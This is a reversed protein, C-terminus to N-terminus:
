VKPANLNIWDIYKDLRTYVSPIGEQGCRDSGFSLLGIQYYRSHTRPDLFILPAGGFGSCADKGAEGGICLHKGTIPVSAGYLLACREIALIPLQLQQQTPPISVQGALKGWGILQARNGVYIYDKNTPYLCIPQVSASYNMPYKLVLLAINDTFTKSDYNPHVIIHNLPIDEANPACYGYACDPDQNCDYEGVKVSAIKHTATKALACHAATLITQKNIISGCCLYDISKTLKNRFGVRVVWPHVGIGSYSTSWWHSIQPRGCEEKQIITPPTSCTQPCCVLLESGQSGCTLGRLKDIQVCSQKVLQSIVHCQSLPICASGRSCLFEQRPTDYFKPSRSSEEEIVLKEGENKKLAIIHIVFSILLLFLIYASM